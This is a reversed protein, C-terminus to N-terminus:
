WQGFPCGLRTKLMELRQRQEEMDEAGKGRLADPGVENILYGEPMYRQAIDRPQPRRTIRVSWTSPHWFSFIKLPIYWPYARYRLAHYRGTQPDPYEPIWRKRLFYPRPLMMYQVVHKRIDMFM